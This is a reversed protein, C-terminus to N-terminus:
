QHGPFESSYLLVVISLLETLFTYIGRTFSEGGDIGSSGIRGSTTDDAPM